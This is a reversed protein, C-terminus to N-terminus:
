KQPQHDEHGPETSEKVIEKMMPCDGVMSSAAGTQGRNMRGSTGPMATMHEMMHRMMRGQVAMIQQRMRMRQAAIQRLVAVIADIKAGDGRAVDVKAIVDDLTQDLAHM